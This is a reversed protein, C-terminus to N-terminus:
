NKLFGCVLVQGVIGGKSITGPVYSFCTHPLYSDRVELDIMERPLPTEPYKEPKPLQVDDDMESQLFGTPLDFLPM